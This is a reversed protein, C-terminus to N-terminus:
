LHQWHPRYRPYLNSRGSAPSDHADLQVVLTKQALGSFCLHWTVLEEAQTNGEVLLAAFVLSVPISIDCLLSFMGFDTVNIFVNPKVVLM